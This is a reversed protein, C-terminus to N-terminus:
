PIPKKEPLKAKKLPKITAKIKEKEEQNISLFDDDNQLNIWNQPDTGTYYGIRIAYEITMRQKGKIMANLRPAPIGTSEALNKQTLHYDTLLQQLTYSVLTHDLKINM